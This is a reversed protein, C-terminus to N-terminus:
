QRLRPMHWLMTQDAVVTVVVQPPVNDLAEVVERYDKDM